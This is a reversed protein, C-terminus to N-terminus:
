DETPEAPEAPEDPEEPGEPVQAYRAWAENLLEALQGAMLPSFAVRAVIIGRGPAPASADMRIFDLTFEHVTQTISAVNAWTGGLQAPEIIIEPQPPPAEEGPQEPTDAM